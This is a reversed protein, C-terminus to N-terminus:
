LVTQWSPRRRVFAKEGALVPIDLDAIKIKLDEAAKQDYVAVRKPRFRRVQQELLEINGFAAISVVRIKLHEAIELAQTGISGTSGLISLTRQTFDISM